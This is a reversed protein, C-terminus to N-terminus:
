KIAGGLADLLAAIKKPAEKDAPDHTIRIKVFHNQYGTVYSEDLVPGGRREVEFRRRVALPAGKATGFLVVEETGLEKVSKYFGQQRASDLADVVGKVETRVEDSKPGDPIKKLGRNYVYVTATLGPAGYAVSYGESYPKAKDRNWGKADPWEIKPGSPAPQKLPAPQGSPLPPGLAAASPLAFGAPACLAVLAFLPRSVPCRSKPRLVEIM